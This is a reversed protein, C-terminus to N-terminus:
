SLPRGFRYHAAQRSAMGTMDAIEGWSAGKARADAVAARQEVELRRLEASLKRLDLRGVPANFGGKPVQRRRKAM